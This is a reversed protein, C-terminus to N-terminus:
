VRTQPVHLSPLTLVTPLLTGQPSPFSRLEKPVFRPSINDALFLLTRRRGVCYILSGVVACQFADPYPTRYTACEYWLRASASCRYVSIGLSRNLDFRYLFGDVAVM